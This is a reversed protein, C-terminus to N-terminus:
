YHPLILMKKQCTIFYHVVDSAFSFANRSEHLLMYCDEDFQNSFVQAYVLQFGCGSHFCVQFLLQATVSVIKHVKALVVLCQMFWGFSTLLFITKAQTEGKWNGAVHNCYVTFDKLL